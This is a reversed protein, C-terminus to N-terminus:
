GEDLNLACIDAFVSVKIYSKRCTSKLVRDATKKFIMELCKQLSKMSIDSNKHLLRHQM